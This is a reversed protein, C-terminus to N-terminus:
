QCTDNTLVDGKWVCTGIAGLISIKESGEHVMDIIERGVEIDSNLINDYM